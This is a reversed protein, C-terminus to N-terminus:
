QQVTVNLCQHKGAGGPLEKLFTEYNSNRVCKIPECHKFLVCIQSQKQFVACSCSADNDCSALTPPYYSDYYSCSAYCIDTQCTDYVNNASVRRTKCDDSDSTDHNALHDPTAPVDCNFDELKVYLEVCNHLIM